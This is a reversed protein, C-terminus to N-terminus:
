NEDEKKFRDVLNKLANSIRSFDIAGKDKAARYTLYIAIPLFFLTSMWGGFFHTISSEEAMNKAFESMFHYTLYVVIAIVMPLGFGGKRILSGLPAGILFLILASFSLAIRRHYETDILNLKKRQRKYSSKSEISKISREVFTLATKTVAEQKDTDFNELIPNSIKHLIISDKESILKKYEIRKSLSKAKDKIYTDYTTKLSDSFYNLQSFSLMGRNSSYKIEDMGNENFDSVDINVTYTKFYTKSFPMRQREEKKSTRNWHEEHFYGSELLLSMYRSGEKTIITGKAATIVNVTNYDKLQYILVNKLLNEEEGYKKDFKIIYGPIETNFTGEIFALAPKHDKINKYLNKQKLVAWPYVNNLFVLNMFSLGVVFIFLPALLKQLSLGASKTAAFEYNESFNGLTMISALLVSIPVAQPVITISFYYIYKLLVGPTLGKGALDDFVLWLGQM